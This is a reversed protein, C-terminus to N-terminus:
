LEMYVAVDEDYLVYVSHLILASTLEKDLYCLNREPNDFNGSIMYLVYNIFKGLCNFVGHSGNDDRLPKAM